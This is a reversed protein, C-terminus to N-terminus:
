NPEPYRDAITVRAGTVAQEFLRAAVAEGHLPRQGRYASFMRARNGPEVQKVIVLPEAGEARPCLMHESVGIPKRLRHNRGYHRAFWGRDDDCGDEVDGVAFAVRILREDEPGSGAIRRVAEIV